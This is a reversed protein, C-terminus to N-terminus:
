CVQNEYYTQEGGPWQPQQQNERYRNDYFPAGEGMANGISSGDPQPMQAFQGDWGDRSYQRLPVTAVPQPHNIHTQHPAIGNPAQWTQPPAPTATHLANRPHGTFVTYPPFPGPPATPVPLATPPPPVVAPTQATQPPAPTFPTPPAAQQTVAPPPPIPASPQGRTPQRTRRNAQQQQSREQNAPVAAGSLSYAFTLKTNSYVKCWAM